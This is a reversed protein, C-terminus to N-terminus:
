FSDQPDGAVEAMGAMARQFAHSHLNAMAPLVSGNLRQAEGPSSNATIASIIGQADVEILVNHQWGDALLARPAFLSDHNSGTCHAQIYMYM